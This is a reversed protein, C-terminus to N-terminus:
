FFIFWTKGSKYFIIAGIIMLLVIQFFLKWSMGKNESVKVLAPIKKFGVILGLILYFFGMSSLTIVFVPGAFEPDLDAFLFLLIEVTIITLWIAISKKMQSAIERRM